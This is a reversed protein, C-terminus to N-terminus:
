LPALAGVSDDCAGRSTRTDVRRRTRPANAHLDADAVQIGVVQVDVGVAAVDGNECAARVPASVLELDVGHRHTVRQPRPRVVKEVDAAALISLLREDRDVEGRLAVVHAGGNVAAGRHEGDATPVLQEATEVAVALVDLKGADPEQREHRGRARSPHDAVHKEGAVPGPLREGAELVVAPPRQEVGAGLGETADDVTEAVASAAAEFAAPDAARDSRVEM